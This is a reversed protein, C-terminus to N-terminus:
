GSAGQLVLAVLPKSIAHHLMTPATERLIVLGDVPTAAVGDRDAHADAYRQADDLLQDTM